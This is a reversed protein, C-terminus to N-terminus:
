HQIFPNTTFRLKVKYYYKGLEHKRNDEIIDQDHMCALFCLMKFAISLSGNDSQSYMHHLPVIMSAYLANNANIHSCTSQCGHYKVQKSENVVDTCINLFFFKFVPFLGTYVSPCSVIAPCDCEWNFFIKQLQLIIFWKKSLM